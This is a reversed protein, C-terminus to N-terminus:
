VVTKAEKFPMEAFHFKGNSQGFLPENMYYNGVGADTDPYLQITKIVRGNDDFYLLETKESINKIPLNLGVLQSNDLLGM